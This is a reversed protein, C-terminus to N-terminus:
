AEPAPKKDSIAAKEELFALTKEELIKKRIQDQIEKGQPGQLFNSINQGTSASLQNIEEKIDAPTVEINEQKAVADLLFARKVQFEAVPRYSEKLERTLMTSSDVALGQQRMRSRADNNLHETQKEVLSAPVDFPNKELIQEILSGHLAANIQQEERATLEKLLHEKLEDITEFEGMDRAFNDDLPPVIKEKIEKLTVDFLVTKGALEKDHFDEPLTVTITRQADKTLGVLQDTFGPLFGEPKVEMTRGQVDGDKLPAGDVTGTYDVVVIDNDQVPRDSEVTNLQAHYNRLEELHRDVDDDTLAVVEKELEIGEYGGELSVHPQVEVRATYTFDKGPQLKENDFIPQSVPQLDKEKVFREYTDNVLKNVVQSEIEKGYYQNLIARPVKGPRFGKIKASKGLDVYLSNLETAVTDAPVVVELQKEVTSIDKITVTPEM